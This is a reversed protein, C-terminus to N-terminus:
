EGNLEEFEEENLEYVDVHEGETEELINIAETQRAENEPHVVVLIADHENALKEKLEYEINTSAREGYLGGLYAGIAGGGMTGMLGSVFMSIEAGSIPVVTVGGLLGLLSGVGLGTLSGTAASAEPKTVILKSVKSVEARTLLSLNHEGFGIRRLKEVARKAKEPDQYLSIVAKM